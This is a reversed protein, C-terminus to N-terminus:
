NCARTQRQPAANAGVDRLAQGLEVRRDDIARQGNVNSMRGVESGYRCARRANIEVAIFNVNDGHRFRRIRM